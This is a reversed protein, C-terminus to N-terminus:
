YRSTDFCVWRRIAATGLLAAGVSRLQVLALVATCVRAEYVISKSSRNFATQSLNPFTTAVRHGQGKVTQGSLFSAQLRCPKITYTIPTFDPLPCKLGHRTYPNSTLFSQWVSNKKFIVNLDTASLHHCLTNPVLNRM